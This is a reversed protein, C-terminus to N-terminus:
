HTPSHFKRRLVPRLGDLRALLSRRSTRMFVRTYDTSSTCSANRVATSALAYTRSRPNVLKLM